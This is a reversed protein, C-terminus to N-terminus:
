SVTLNVHADIEEDRFGSYECLLKRGSEHATLDDFDTAIPKQDKETESTM